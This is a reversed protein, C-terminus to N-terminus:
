INIESYPVNTQIVCENVSQGNIYIDPISNMKESPSIKKIIHLHKSVSM